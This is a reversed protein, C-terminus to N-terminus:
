KSREPGVLWHVRLAAVEDGTEDVISAAVEYERQESADPVPARGLATLDGRAKKKYEIDLGTVIARMRPPLGSILALGSALEGLTVLATAHVSRLHNRVRARDRMKVTSRGPELKVVRPRVTGSYRVLRGLLFSFLLPGAPVGHLRRWMALIRGTPNSHGVQERKAPAASTM